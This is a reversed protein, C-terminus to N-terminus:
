LHAKVIGFLTKEDQLRRSAEQFLVIGIIYLVNRVVRSNSLYYLVLVLLPKEGRVAAVLQLIFAHIIRVSRLWFASLAAFIGSTGFLM